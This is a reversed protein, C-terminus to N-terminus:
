IWTALFEGIEQQVTVEVRPCQSLKTARYELLKGDKNYHPIQEVVDVNNGILDLILVDEGETNQVITYHFVNDLNIGAKNFGEKTKRSYHFKM